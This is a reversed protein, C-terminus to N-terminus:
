PKAKKMLHEVVLENFPLEDILHHIIAGILRDRCAECLNAVKNIGIPVQLGNHNFRTGEIELHECSVFAPIEPSDAETVRLWKQPKTPTEQNKKFM